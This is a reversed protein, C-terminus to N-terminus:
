CSGGDILYPHTIVDRLSVIPNSYKDMLLDFILIQAFLRPYLKEHDDTNYITSFM